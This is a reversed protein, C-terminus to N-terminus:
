VHVFGAVTQAPEPLGKEHDRDTAMMRMRMSMMRSIEDVPETRIIKTMM